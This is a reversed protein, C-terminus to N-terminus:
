AFVSTTPVIALRSFFDGQGFSCLSLDQDDLRGLVTKKETKTKAKNKKKKEKEKKGAKKEAEKKEKV